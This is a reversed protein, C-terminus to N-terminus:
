DQRGPLTCLYSNTQPPLDYSFKHPLVTASIPHSNGTCLAKNSTSLLLSCSRSRVRIEMPIPPNMVKGTEIIKSCGWHVVKLEEEVNLTEIDKPPQQTEPNETAPKSDSEAGNQIKNGYRIRGFAARVRESALGNTSQRLSALAEPTYSWFRYQTSSRYIDDEIMTPPLQLPAPSYSHIDNRIQCDLM